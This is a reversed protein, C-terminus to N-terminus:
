HEGIGGRKFINSALARASYVCLDPKTSKTKKRFAERATCAIEVDSTTDLLDEDGSSPLVNGGDGDLLRYQFATLKDAEADHNTISLTVHSCQHRQSTLHAHLSRWGSM